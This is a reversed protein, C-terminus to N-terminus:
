LISEGRRELARRAREIAQRIGSAEADSLDEKENKSYVSMMLVIGYEEFHVYCVRLAGSKGRAWSAPCFRLQRLGGTGQVVDGCKPNEMIAIQLQLLDDDGLQLSKDWARTFASTEIFHLLDEPHLTRKSRTVDIRQRARRRPM